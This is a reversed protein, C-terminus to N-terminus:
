VMWYIHFSSVRWKQYMLHATSLGKAWVHVNLEEVSHIYTSDHFMIGVPIHLLDDYCLIGGM